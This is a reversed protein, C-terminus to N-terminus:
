RPPYSTPSLSSWRGNKNLDRHARLVETRKKTRCGSRKKGRQEGAIGSDSEESESSQLRKKTNVALKEEKRRKRASTKSLPRGDGAAKRKQGRATAEANKM